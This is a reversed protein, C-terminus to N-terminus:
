CHLELLLYRDALDTNADPQGDREHELLSPRAWVYGRRSGGFGRKSTTLYAPNQFFPVCMSCARAHRIM